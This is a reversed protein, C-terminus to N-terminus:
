ESDAGADQVGNQNTTEAEQAVEDVINGSSAM